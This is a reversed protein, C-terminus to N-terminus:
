SGRVNITVPQVKATPLIFKAHPVAPALSEAATDIWGEASDGLGHMLIVSATHKAKAPTLILTTGEESLKHTRTSMARRGVAAAACALSPIVSLAALRSVVSGCRHM